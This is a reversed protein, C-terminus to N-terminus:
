SSHFACTPRYKPEVRLTPETIIRKLAGQSENDIAAVAEDSFFFVCTELHSTFRGLLDRPSSAHTGHEGFLSVM